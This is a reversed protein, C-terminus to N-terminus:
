SNGLSRPQVDKVLRVGVDPHGLKLRRRLPHTEPIGMDGAEQRYFDFAYRSTLLSNVSPFTCAAQSRARDFVVSEAALSDLFPTTPRHYGYLSM